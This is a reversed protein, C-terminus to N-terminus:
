LESDLLVNTVLHNGEAHVADFFKHQLKKITFTDSGSGDCSSPASNYSSKLITTMEELTIGMNEEVLEKVLAINTDTM